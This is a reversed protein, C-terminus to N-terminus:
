RNVAQNINENAPGARVGGSGEASGAKSRGKSGDGSGAGSGDDSGPKSGATRRRRVGLLGLGLVLAPAGLITAHFWAVNEARTHVIPVDEESQTEGALTEERGLWRIADSALAANLGLSTVVADSFLEADAFVMARATAAPPTVAPAASSDSKATTDSRAAPPAPTTARPEIAAVLSYMKREETKEDFEFDGDRDAFTSPLSRMVVTPLATSDVPELYGSGMLLTGSGASVRGLTSLSAHSSFRDTIIIRRDSVTGRLRVHQRDDALPVARYDLGLRQRLLGLQFTGEPELALLVSGGRALYRDLSQLEPELFPRSPGLVLVMAADAPVENGLGGQLGLDAVRYNLLDFLKRLADVSRFPRMELPGAPTGDNLEGHGTTLYITKEDRAVRMLARQVDADFARLRHRAERWSTPLAIIESRDNYALVISGDQTVRHQQAIEPAALRDYEEVSVNNTATQLARFYGRVQEKVENAPPFFLLVRLRASRSEVIQRAASGPSSTRFYSLDITKDRESAVWGILFLFAVALGVTLGAAALQTIRLRDVASTQRDVGRGDTGTAWQAALAPFLSIALLIAALVAAATKFRALTQAQDFDIGIWDYGNGALFFGVVSLLCGASTLFFLREVRETDGRATRWSILRWATAALVLLFGGGSLVIRAIAVEKAAREGLYVAFLGAVLVWTLWAPAHKQLLARPKM